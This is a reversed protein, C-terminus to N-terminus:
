SILIVMQDKLCHLKKRKFNINLHAIFIKDVNDRAVRRSVKRPVWILKLKLIINM